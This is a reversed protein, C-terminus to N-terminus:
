PKRVIHQKGEDNQYQYVISLTEIRKKCRYSWIISILALCTVLILALWIWIGWSINSTQNSSIVHKTTSNELMNEAQQAKSPSIKNSTPSSQMLTESLALVKQQDITQKAEILLAHIYSVDLGEKNLKPTAPYPTVEAPTSYSANPFPSKLPKLLYAEELLTNVYESHTRLKYQTIEDLIAGYLQTNSLRKPAVQPKAKIILLASANDSFNKDDKIVLKVWYQGAELAKTDIKFNRGLAKNTFKSSWHRLIKSSKDHTSHSSFLATKGQVVELKAPHIIAKPRNWAKIKKAVELTILTDKKVRQKAKISQTLVTNNATKHPKQIWKTRLKTKTMLAQAAAQSLGIVNPVKIDVDAIKTVSDIKEVAAIEEESKAKSIKLKSPPVTQKLPTASSDKPLKKEALSGQLSAKVKQTLSAYWTGRAYRFSATIIYHGAQKFTYQFSSKSSYYTRGNISFGYEAKKDVDVNYVNAQIWTSEGVKFHKQDLMVKVRPTDKDVIDSLTINVARQQIIRQKANPTQYIVQIREMKITRESVHGLNLNVAALAAKAQELSMGKLNPVVSTQLHSLSKAIILRVPFDTAVKTDPPPAQVMVTNPSHNSTPQYQVTYNSLGQKDLSQKAAELSLGMVNPITVKAYSISTM